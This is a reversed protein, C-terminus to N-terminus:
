DTLLGLAEFVWNPTGRAQLCRRVRLRMWGLRAPIKLSEVFKRLSESIVEVEESDEMETDDDGSGGGKERGSGGEQGNTEKRRVNSSDSSGGEEEEDEEKDEDEDEDEDDEEEVGVRGDVWLGVLEAFWWPVMGVGTAGLGALSDPVVAVFPDTAAAGAELHRLAIGVVGWLSTRPHVAGGGGGGGGGGGARLAASVRTSAHYATRYRVRGLLGGAEAKPPPFGPARVTGWFRRAQQRRVGRGPPYPDHWTLEDWERDWISITYVSTQQAGGAGGARRYPMVHRHIFCVFRYCGYRGEERAGGGGSSSVRRGDGRSVGSGDVYEIQRVPRWARRLDDLVADDLLIQTDGRVGRRPAKRRKRGREANNDTPDDRPPLPEVTTLPHFYAWPASNNTNNNSTSATSTSSSSLPARNCNLANLAAPLAAARPYTGRSLARLVSTLDATQSPDLAPLNRPSPNTYTFPRPRLPLQDPQRPQRRSM